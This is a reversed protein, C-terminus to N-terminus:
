EPEPVLLWGGAGLRALGRGWLLVLVGALGGTLWGATLGLWIATVLAVWQGVTRFVSTAELTDIAFQRVDEPTPMFETRGEITQRRVLLQWLAGRLKRGVTRSAVALIRVWWAQYGLILVVPFAMAFLAQPTGELGSASAAFWAVIPVLLFLAALLAARRGMPRGLREAAEELQSAPRHSM